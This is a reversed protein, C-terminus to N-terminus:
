GFTSRETSGVRELEHLPLTNHHVSAVMKPM